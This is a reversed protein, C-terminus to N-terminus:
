APRAAEWSREFALRLVTVALLDDLLISMEKIMGGPQQDAPYLLVQSESALFGIERREDLVRVEAGAGQLEEVLERGVPGLALFRIKGGAASKARLADLFHPAFEELAQPATLSVVTSAGEFLRQAAAMGDEFGHLVRLAQVAAM